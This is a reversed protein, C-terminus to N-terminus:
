RKAASPWLHGPPAGRRDWAVELMRGFSCWVCTQRENSRLSNTLRPSIARLSALVSGADGRAECRWQGGVWRRTEFRSVTSSIKKSSKKKSMGGNKGCIGFRSGANRKEFRRPAVVPWLRLQLRGFFSLARGFFTADQPLKRRIVLRSAISVTEGSRRLQQEGCVTWFRCLLVNQFSLLYASCGSRHSIWLTILM